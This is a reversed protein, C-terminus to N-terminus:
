ARPRVPHSARQRLKRGQAFMHSRKFSSTDLTQSTCTSHEKSWAAFSTTREDRWLTYIYIYIYIYIYVYM